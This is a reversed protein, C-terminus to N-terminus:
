RDIRGNVRANGAQYPKCSVCHKPGPVEFAVTFKLGVTVPHYEANRSADLSNFGPVVFLQMSEDKMRYDLLSGSAVHSTYVSLFGYEAFAALYYRVKRARLERERLKTAKSVIRGGLELHAMLNTQLHLPYTDSSVIGDTAFFQMPSSEIPMVAATASMRGWLNFGANVGALMYFYRHEVGVLVPINLNIAHNLVTHSSVNAKVNFFQGEPNTMGQEVQENAVVHTYFGYQADVGLSLLFENHYLRYGFGISPSFGISPKINPTTNLLMTGGFSTNVTLFHHQEPDLKTYAFVNLSLVSLLIFLLSKKM